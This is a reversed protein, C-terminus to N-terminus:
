MLIEGYVPCSGQRLRPSLPFSDAIESDSEGKDKVSALQGKVLGQRIAEDLDIPNRDLEELGVQKRNRVFLEM